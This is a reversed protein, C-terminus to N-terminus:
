AAAVCRWKSTASNWFFGVTLKASIVTTTPLAVTSAEFSTGWTIARATGNDTIEIIVSEGAAPTGSLNTTMSTIAQALGTISAVDTNDTNITPTAAQTVTVVRRTIRKNTVAKTNSTTLVSVGEVALDGAAARSLTTDTAHGLEISGVGLASSTSAAIDAVAVQQFSPTGSSVQQLYKNTATSNNAIGGFAGANDYQVNKDSGGPAGGSGSSKMQGSSDIVRLGEGDTYVFTDGIALTGSWIIRATGNDNYQLTLTVSATDSNRITVLKVQRQTSAAPAAVVDVATGSNTATTNTGPTYALATVDIYSAVIPLQNTAPAGSLKAQLSRVTSDLIIM